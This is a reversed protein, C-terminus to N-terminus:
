PNKKIDDLLMAIRFNALNRIVQARTNIRGYEDKVIRVEKGTFANIIVEKTKGCNFCKLTIINEM